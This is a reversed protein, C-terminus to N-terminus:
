VNWGSHSYGWHPKKLNEERIKKMREIDEPKESKCICSWTREGCTWCDDYQHAM